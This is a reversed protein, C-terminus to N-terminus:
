SENVWRASTGMEDSEIGFSIIRTPQIRVIPDEFQEGFAKGGSPVVVATGRVEIM